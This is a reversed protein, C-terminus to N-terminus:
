SARISCSRSPLGSPSSGFGRLKVSSAGFRDGADLVDILNEGELKPVGLGKEALLDWQTGAEGVTARPAYVPDFPSLVSGM